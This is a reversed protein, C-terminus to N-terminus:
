IGLISYGDERVLVNAELRVGGVGQIYIGPEVSHVMGTHLIDKSSPSLIPKSEHYCFGVGHGSNHVFNDGFGAREITKRAIADVEAASIGDRISVIADSQAQLVTSYIEAIRFEMGGVGATETMDCWYGDVAVGIELMVLDKRELKRDGSVVGAFWADATRPGSTVQAWARAYKVGDKGCAFRAIYSEVEAAVDIERINPNNIINAFYKIGERTIKNAIHLKQIDHENKITRMEDIMSNIPVLKDSGFAEKIASMTNTGPLGVEGACLPPAVAEFGMEVGIKANEKINDESVLEKLIRVLNVYPNGDSIKVWGFCKIKRLTGFFADEYDAQPCIVCAEGEAPVYVFSFGNRPWYQSFMVVNEPLRLLVADIGQEKMYDQCQKVRQEM